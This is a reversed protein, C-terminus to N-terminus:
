RQKPNRLRLTTKAQVTDYLINQLSIDLVHVIRVLKDLDSPDYIANEWQIITKIPINTKEAFERRSMGIREREKKIKTGDFAHKM